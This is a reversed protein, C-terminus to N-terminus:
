TLFPSNGSGSISINDAKLNISLTGNDGASISDSNGTVSLNSIVITKLLDLATRSTESKYIKVILKTGRSFGDWDMENLTMADFAAEQNSLKAFLELDSMLAEASVEITIPSVLTRDFAKKNGLENVVTRDLTGNIGVSQLRLTKEETGSTGNFMYIDIMGRRLAGIGSPTSALSAFSAPANKAAILRIRDGTSFTVATTGDTTATINTNPSSFTLTITGGASVDAAIVGNKTLVRATHTSALNQGYVTAQTASTVTGSVVYTDRYANLFYRKYEGETTFTETATGDVSYNLSFGTLSQSGAWCSAHLADSNTGSTIKMVFDVKAKDFSANTLMINANDGSQYMNIMKQFNDISGFDHCELNCGVSDLNSITEAVGSNSLELINEDTFSADMSFSNVRKAQSEDIYLAYGSHQVRSTKAM